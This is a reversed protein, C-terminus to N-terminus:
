DKEVKLFKGNQDFILAKGNVAAEYNLVGGAKTIKSAEKISAGKYHQKVYGAIAEPLAGAAIPAETEELGGAANFNASMEQGGQTFNVEYGKDEKEWRENSAGTFTKVFSAKVSAPPTVSKEAKKQAHLACVAAIFVCLFLFRKM